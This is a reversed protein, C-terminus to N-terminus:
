DNKKYYFLKLVNIHNKKREYHKKKMYIKKKEICRTSSILINSIKFILLTYFTIM